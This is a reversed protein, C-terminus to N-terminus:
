AERGIPDLSALLRAVAREAPGFLRELLLDAIERAPEGPYRFDGAPRLLRGIEIWEPDDECDTIAYVTGGACGLEVRGRMAVTVPWDLARALRGSDLLERPVPSSSLFRDGYRFDVRPQRRASPGGAPPRVEFRLRLPWTSVLCPEESTGRGRARVGLVPPAGAVLPTM